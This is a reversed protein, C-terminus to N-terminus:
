ANEGFEFRAGRAAMQAERVQRADRNFMGCFGKVANIVQGESPHTSARETGHVCLVYHKLDSPCGSFLHVAYHANSLLCAKRIEEASPKVGKIELWFPSKGFPTVLFDPLYRTGVDDLEFGEPEYAWDVVLEDLFVAWRAELRSRFRYGKYRTEIAKVAGGVFSYGCVCADDVVELPLAGAAFTRTGIYVREAASLV